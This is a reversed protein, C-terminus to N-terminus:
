ATQMASRRSLRQRELENLGGWIGHTEGVSMAYGLCERRVQCRACIARATGERRDKEPKREFHNPAFFYPANAGCCEARTRWTMEDYM